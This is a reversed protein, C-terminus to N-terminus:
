SAPPLEIELGPWNPEASVFTVKDLDVGGRERGFRVAAAIRLNNCHNPNALDHKVMTWVNHTFMETSGDPLEIQVTTKYWTDCPTGIM